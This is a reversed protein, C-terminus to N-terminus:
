ISVQDLEKITNQVHDLQNQLTQDLDLPLAERLVEKYANILTNDGRKIENLLADVDGGTLLAKFDLYLRHMPGAVSGSESPTEGRLRMQMELNRIMEMRESAEAMLIPKLSTENIVRACERYGKESDHLYNLLDNLQETPTLSPSNTNIM